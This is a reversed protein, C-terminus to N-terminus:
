IYIYIRIANKMSSRSLTDRESRESALLQLKSFYKNCLKPSHFSITCWMRSVSTTGYDPVVYFCFGMGIKKLVLKWHNCLKSMAAM